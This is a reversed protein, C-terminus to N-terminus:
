NSGPGRTPWKMRWPTYIKGQSALVALKQELDAITRKTTKAKAAAFNMEPILAHGPLEAANADATVTLGMRQLAAVSLRAVRAGNPHKCARAVQRPTAFDERFFSMGDLDRNKNPRFSYPDITWRNM